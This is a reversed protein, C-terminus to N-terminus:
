GENIKRRVRMNELVKINDDVEKQTYVVWEDTFHCFFEDGMEVKEGADLERYM